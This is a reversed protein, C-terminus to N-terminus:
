MYTCLFHLKKEILWGTKRVTGVTRAILASTTVKLKGTLLM